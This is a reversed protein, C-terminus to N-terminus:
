NFKYVKKAFKYGHLTIKNGVKTKLNTLGALKFYKLKKYLDKDIKRIYDWLEERKQLSEEDKKMLLYVDSITIMMSLMRILYNHLKPYVKKVEKLDLCSAIIKTVKIQQDVRTIMVSENVSQDERGIFYHYLDMNYYCISQVFPLPEYAVINDVYFTHEPLNLKSKRLVNTKYILAHMILYQGTKFHKLDNWTCIKDEPFVNKYRMVKQKNEYLHDYVYNCVILDPSNNELKKINELLSLLSEKDLWDDSDVVKFYKGTAEKLGANVGSGHGGNEKHIAKVINPNEKVYKDAIKGTNDKSGDNVIIIEVDKGGILLSDICREMYDQSNYCPVVFSIEKMVDGISNFM